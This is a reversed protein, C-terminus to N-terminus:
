NLQDVSPNGKIIQYECLKFVSMMPRLGTCRIVDKGCDFFNYDLSYTRCPTKVSDLHVMRTEKVKFIAGAIGEDYNVDLRIPSTLPLDQALEEQGKHHIYLSIDSITKFYLSVADNVPRPQFVVKANLVSPDCFSFIKNEFLILEAATSYSLQNLM